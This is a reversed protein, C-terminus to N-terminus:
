NQTNQKLNKSGISLHFCLRVIDFRLITYFILDILNLLIWVNMSLCSLYLKGCNFVNKEQFIKNKECYFHSFYAKRNYIHNFKITKPLNKLLMFKSVFRLQFFYIGFSTFNTIILLRALIHLSSSILFQFPFVKNLLCFKWNKTDCAKNIWTQL